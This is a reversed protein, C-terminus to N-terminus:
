GEGSPHLNSRNCHPRNTPPAVDSGPPGSLSSPERHLIGGAVARHLLSASPVKDAHLAPLRNLHKLDGLMPVQRATPWALSIRHHDEARTLGDKGRFSPKARKRTQNRRRIMSKWSMSRLRAGFLSGTLFGSKSRLGSTSADARRHICSIILAPGEKSRKPNASGPRQPPRM